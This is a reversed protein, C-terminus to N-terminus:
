SHDGQMSAGFRRLLETLQLVDEDSWGVLQESVTSAFSDAFSRMWEEGEATIRVLSARRDSPDTERAAYGLEVLQAVARSVVSLDLRLRAALQSARQGEPHRALISLTPLWSHSEGPAARYVAHKFHGLAPMARLLQLCSAHTPEAEVNVQVMCANYRVTELM